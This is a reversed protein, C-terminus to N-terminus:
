QYDAVSVKLASAAKQSTRNLVEQDTILTYWDFVRLGNEDDRLLGHEVHDLILSAEAESFCDNLALSLL